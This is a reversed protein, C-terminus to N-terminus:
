LKKSILHVFKQGTGGPTDHISRQTLVTKFAPGLLKELEGENYRVIEIGSCKIPGDEAFVSLVVFGGKAVTAAVIESYRKQDKVDTLFHLVARDHWLDFELGHFDYELINGVRWQIEGARSGLREKAIDLASASIDLVSINKFDKELLDDVLTSAGGGVDIIRAAHGLSTAAILDMSSSIHATYWSVQTHDKTTYINDWHSKADM